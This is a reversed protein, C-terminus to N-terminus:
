RKKNIAGLLWPAFDDMSMADPSKAAAPAGGGITPPPSPAQSVRKVAPAQAIRGELRALEIAQQYPPLELIRWAEAQNNVLFSTIEPAKDSNAVIDAAAESFPMQYFAAKAQAVGPLRGEAETIKAEYTAKRTAHAVQALHEAQAILTAKNEERVATRVRHAETADYNNPDPPSIPQSLNAIQQRLSAIEADQSHKIATLKAVRQSWRGKPEQGDNEPTQPAEPQPAKQAEAKADPVAETTPAAPAPPVPAATPTPTNSDNVIAAPAAPAATDLM